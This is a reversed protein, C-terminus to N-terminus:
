EYRPLRVVGNIAFSMLDINQEVAAETVELNVQSFYQSDDLRTLFDALVLNDIAKGKIYVENGEFSLDTFYIRNSILDSLESFLFVPGVQKSELIAIAQNKKSLEEKQKKYVERKERLPSDKSVKSEMKAIDKKIADVEQELLNVFFICAFMTVGTVIVALVIGLLIHGPASIATDEGLNIKM